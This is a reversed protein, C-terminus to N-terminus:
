HFHKISCNGSKEVDKRCSRCSVETHAVFQSTRREIRALERYQVGADRAYNLSKEAEGKLEELNKKADENYGTLPAFVESIKDAALESFQVDDMSQALQGTALFIKGSAESIVNEMEALTEQLEAIVSVSASAVARSIVDKDIKISNVDHEFKRAAKETPEFAQEVRKFFSALGEEHLEQSKRSFENFSEYIERSHETLKDSTM